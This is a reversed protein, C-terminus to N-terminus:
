GAALITRICQLSNRVDRKRTQNGVKLTQDRSVEGARDGELSYLGLIRLVLFNRSPAVGGPKQM